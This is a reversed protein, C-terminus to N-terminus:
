CAFEACGVRPLLQNGFRGLQELRSCMAGESDITLRPVRWAAVAEARSAARLEALAKLAALAGRDAPSRRRDVRALVDDM